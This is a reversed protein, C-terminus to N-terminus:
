DYVSACQPLDCSVAKLHAHEKCISMSMFGRGGGVDAFSRISKWFADLKLPLILSVFKCCSEMYRAFTFNLNPVADYITGFDGIMPEPQKGSLFASLNKFDSRETNGRTLFSFGIFLPSTRVCFDSAEQTNSYKAGEKDYHIHGM